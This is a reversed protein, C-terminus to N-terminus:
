DDFDTDDEEFLISLSSDKQKKVIKKVEKVSEPIYIIYGKSKIENIVKVNSLYRDKQAKLYGLEKLDKLVVKADSFDGEQLMRKFSEETLHLEQVSTEGSKLIEKKCVIIRGRGEGRLEYNGKCYIQFQNKVIWQLIWEMAREGISGKRAYEKLINEEIFELIGDIDLNYRMFINLIEASLLIIAVQKAIRETLNNYYNGLKAREIVKFEYEHFYECLTEINEEARGEELIEEVLNPIVFGYNDFIIRKINDASEASKTWTINNFEMNRVLLGTNNNCQSLISKESTLFIATRFVSADQMKLDKNLRRKETGACLTYIMNTCNKSGLLSGEDILVPFSCPIGKMLSNITDNFSFVLSQRTTDPSSGSAVAFLSATTKGTSSEGILHIVTNEIGVKEKLLDVLMGSSACALIFEMPIHGEIEERIMSDWDELKGHPEVTHSGEYYSDVGIGKAGRFILQNNYELFGLEKHILRRPATVMQNEICKILINATNPYVQMGYIACDLIKKDILSIRPFVKKVQSGDATGFLLEVSQEDTKIDVIVGNVYVAGGAKLFDEEKGEKKVVGYCGDRIQVEEHTLYTFKKEIERKMEKEKM